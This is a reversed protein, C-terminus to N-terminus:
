GGCRLSCRARSLFCVCLSVCIQVHSFLSFCVCVCNRISPQTHSSSFFFAPLSSISPRIHLCPFPQTFILYSVSTLPHFVSPLFASPRLCTCPTNLFLHFPPNFSPFFNFHSPLYVVRHLSPAAFSPRSSRNNRRFRSLYCAFSPRPFSFPLLFLKLPVPSIRSSYHFSLLHM